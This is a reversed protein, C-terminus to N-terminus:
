CYYGRKVLTFLLFALRRGEGFVIASFAIFCPLIILTATYELCLPRTSLLLASISHTLWNDSRRHQLASQAEPMFQYIWRRGEFM